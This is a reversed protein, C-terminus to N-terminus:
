LGGEGWIYAWGIALLSIIGINNAGRNILGDFTCFTFASRKHKKVFM